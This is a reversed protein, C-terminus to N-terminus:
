SNFEFTEVAAGLVLEDQMEMLQIETILHGALVNAMKIAQKHGSATWKRKGSYDNNNIDGSTGNWLMGVCQPDLYRQILRHFHGFYDASIASATIPAWMTFCSTPFPPLLVATKAGEVYLM